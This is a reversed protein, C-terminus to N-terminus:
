FVIRAWDWGALGRDNVAKVRVMSGPLVSPLRLSPSAGVEIDRQQEAGSADTWTAVYRTIGSEPSPSWRADAGRGSVTVELGEIRSPSSALLM